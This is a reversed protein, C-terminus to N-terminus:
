PRTGTFDRHSDSPAECLDRHFGRVGEDLAAGDGSEQIGDLDNLLEEQVDDGPLRLGRSFGPPVTRLGTRGNITSDLSFAPDAVIDDLGGPWFPVYGSKGRVFNTTPGPARDM